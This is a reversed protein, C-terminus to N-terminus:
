GIVKFHAADRIKEPYKDKYITDVDNREHGMLERLLDTEIFLNKGFTAFTHRAVKIGINGGLPQVKIELNEQVKLLSRRFNDRFTKYGAFDKRWPFVYKGKVQYKDIIIQAKQVIKLDFQYGADDLKGRMFYVRNNAINKRELYYMDKLDQGGFYFLLLFLDVTRQDAFNLNQATELKIIADKTLNKKKTRNSKVTIGKFVETFPKEDKIFNRKVAENYVARYKRLYTHITNKSNGLKIRWDKFGNLLSYDIDQFELNSRYKKLQDLATKYINHTSIKGKNKLGQLYDDYFQYFSINSFNESAGLLINKVAELSAKRTTKYTFVIEDLLLQKKRIFLQMAPNKIPMQKELDWDKLEFYIGLNVKKQKGKHHLFVCVPFGEKRKESKRTDLRIKGNM